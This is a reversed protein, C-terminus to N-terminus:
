AFYDGCGDIAADSIELWSARDSQANARATEFENVYARRVGQVRVDIDGLGHAGFRESMEDLFAGVEATDNLAANAQRRSISHSDPAFWALKM